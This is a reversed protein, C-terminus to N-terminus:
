IKDNYYKCILDTINKAVIRHEFEEHEWMYIASEDTEGNPLVRYGYYDGCGNGAFFIHRDIKEKYEEEDDFATILIERNLSTIERMEEASLILWEDGDLERLLQRLEQPFKYGIYKETKEIEEESCPAHINVHRIDKSLGVILERYM